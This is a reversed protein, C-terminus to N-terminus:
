EFQGSSKKQEGLVVNAVQGVLGAIGLTAFRWRV